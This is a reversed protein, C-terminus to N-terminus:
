WGVGLLAASFNARPSRADGLAAALAAERLAGVGALARGFAGADVGALAALAEGASALRAMAGPGVSQSDPTTRDLDLNTKAAAGRAIFGFEGGTAGGWGGGGPAFQLVVTLTSGDTPAGALDVVPGMGNYFLALPAEWYWASASPPRGALAAAAHRSFPVPAGNATVRSLAGGNLLRLQYARAPPLEPFAGVTSINVVLAGDGVCEWTLTTVASANSLYATTSGDDEYAAGSGSGGGGSCNAAPPVLRWGLFDVRASAAGVTTPLSRLPLFPVAAGAAFFLPVHAITYTGTWNLGRPAPSRLLAGTTADYWAGPPLWTTKTALGPGFAFPAGPTNVPSFLIDEGFMYQSFNGGGPSLLYAEPAEPWRYYMPIILGVGTDFAARHRTYIYPVLEGRLQLAARVAAGVASDVVSWPELIACQPAWPATANARPVNNCGGSSLGRDHLRLVGSFAGVQVWRAFLEEDGSPGLIDHSIFAHGVNVATASFYPQYAMNPWDLGMVDGTFGVQYRHHGLGGFRALVLGRAADGVRNRSTSRLKALWLSPNARDGLLGGAAGGSQWDIWFADVGKRLLDGMVIDEAAHAVTANLLNLPARTANAPLGLAAALQPFLAEWNNVGDADHINVLAGVGRARIGALTDAPDPYLAPDFTFGSWDNKM